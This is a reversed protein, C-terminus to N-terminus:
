VNVIFFVIQAMALSLFVSLVVCATFPTRRMFFFIAGGAVGTAALAPIYAFVQLIVHAGGSALSALLGTAAGGQLSQIRLLWLLAFGAVAGIEFAVSLAMEAGHREVEGEISAADLGNDIAGIAIFAAVFSVIYAIIVLLTKRDVSAGRMTGAERMSRLAGRM